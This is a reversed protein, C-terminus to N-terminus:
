VEIICQCPLNTIVDQVIIQLLTLDNPHMPPGPHFLFQVYQLYNTLGALCLKLIVINYVTSLPCELLYPCTCYLLGRLLPCKLYM